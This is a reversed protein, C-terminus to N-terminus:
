RGLAIQPTHDAVALRNGVALDLPKGLLVQELEVAPEDQQAGVVLARDDVV